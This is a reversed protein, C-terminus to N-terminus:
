RPPMIPPPALTSEDFDVHANVYSESDVIQSKLHAMRAASDGLRCRAYRHRLEDLFIGVTLNVCSGGATVPQDISPETVVDARVFTPCEQFDEPFPRTYPCADDPLKGM